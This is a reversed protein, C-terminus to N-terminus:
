KFEVTVLRAPTTGFRVMDSPADVLEVQGGLARLQGAILEGIRNVGAVDASGSEISVLDRLTNLFAAREQAVRTRVADTQGPAFGPVFTAMFAFVAAARLRM